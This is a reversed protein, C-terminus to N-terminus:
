GSNLGGMKRLPGLGASTAASSSRGHTRSSTLGHFCYLAKTGWSLVGLWCDCVGFRFCVGTWSILVCLYPLCGQSRIRWQEWDSSSAGCHAPTLSDATRIRVVTAHAPCFQLDDGSEGRSATADSAGLARSGALHLRGWLEPVQILAMNPYNGKSVM